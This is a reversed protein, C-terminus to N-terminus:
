SVLGSEHLLIPVTVILDCANRTEPKTGM